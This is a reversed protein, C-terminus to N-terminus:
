LKDDKTKDEIIEGDLIEEENKKYKFEQKKILKKALIKRTIPFLLIFGFIDTIFGPIILLIAAIALSAGSVIEYIPMKNQYLNLLGSRVTNVGQIKVFYIGIIATLFIMIITNLAGIQHGIKIMVYIEIAPVGIILLLLSNM